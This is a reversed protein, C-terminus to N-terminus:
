RGFKGGLLKNHKFGIHGKVEIVEIIVYTLFLFPLVKLTDLVADLIVESM